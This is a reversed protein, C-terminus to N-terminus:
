FRGVGGSVGRYTIDGDDDPIDFEKAVRKGTAWHLQINDVFISVIMKEGTWPAAAPWISTSTWTMITACFIDISTIVLRRHQQQVPIFNYNTLSQM